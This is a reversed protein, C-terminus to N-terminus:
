RYTPTCARPTLQFHIPYITSHYKIASNFYHWNSTDWRHRSNDKSNTCYDMWEQFRDFASLRGDSVWESVVVMCDRTLVMENYLSDYSLSSLRGIKRSSLLSWERNTNSPMCSSTKGSRMSYHKCWLFDKIRVMTRWWSNTSYRTTRHLGNRGGSYTKIEHLRKKMEIQRYKM